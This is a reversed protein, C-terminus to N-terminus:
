FLREFGQNEILGLDKKKEYYRTKGIGLLQILKQNDDKLLELCRKLYKKEIWNLALRYSQESIEMITTPLLDAPPILQDANSMRQNLVLHKPEIRYASDGKALICAREITNSLERINGNWWHDELLKKSEKTLIASPMQKKAFIEALFIIDEQKERLPTTFLMVKNLRFYLDERFTGASVMKELNKNTAALVRVDVSIEKESGVPSIVKEQLVRLLKVQATLSLEGIEDLFLDGRHAAMFKGTRNDIAGTFSGKKHGFLESEILNEPISGCNVAIFPRNPNGEQLNLTRAILEKGTGAEGQILVNANTGKYKAIEAKLKLTSLANGLIQYHASEKAISTKVLESNEKKISIVKFCNSIRFKLNQVLDETNKVVYDDAGAKMADVITSAEKEGTLMIVPFNRDRQKVVRLVDLGTVEPMNLDVVLLDAGSQGLLRFAMNAQTTTIVSFEDSLAIKLQNLHAEDDDLLLITKVFINGKYKNISRLGHWFPPSSGLHKIVPLLNNNKFYLL